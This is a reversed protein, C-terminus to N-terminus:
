NITYVATAAASRSYGIAVAIAKLTETGSVTIAGTYKTSSTTPATGNTTYYITAGSTADSITVSQATTYTKGPPSFMGNLTLTFAARGAVASAPAISTLTLPTAVTNFNAFVLTEDNATLTAPNAIGTLDYTWGAFIWGSGSIPTASLSLNQGTPYFGDNTPSAPSLAASGGCPPDSFNTAPAYEPM